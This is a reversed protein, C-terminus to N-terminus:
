FQGRIFPLRCCTINELSPPNVEMFESIIKGAKLKNKKAERPHRYLLMVAKGIKSSKLISSDPVPYQM